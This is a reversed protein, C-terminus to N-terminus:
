MKIKKPSSIEFEKGKNLKDNMEIQFNKNSSNEESIKIHNINEFKIEKSKNENLNKLINAELKSYDGFYRRMIDILEEFSKEDAKIPSCIGMLM